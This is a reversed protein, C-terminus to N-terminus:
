SETGFALALQRVLANEAGHPQVAAYIYKFGRKRIFKDHWIDDRIKLLKDHTPVDPTSEFVAVEVIVVGPIFGGMALADGILCLTSDIGSFIENRNKVIGDLANMVCDVFPIISTMITARDMLGMDTTFAHVVEGVWLASGAVGAVKLAVGGSGPRLRPSTVELAEYKLFEKRFTTLDKNVRKSRKQRETEEPTAEGKPKKPEQEGKPTSSGEDGNPEKDAEFPNEWDCLSSQRKM